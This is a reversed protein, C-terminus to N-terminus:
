AGAGVAATGCEPCRKPTARMDYGCRPCSVVGPHRRRMIPLMLPFLAFLLVVMAHPFVFTDRHWTWEVTGSSPYSEVSRGYGFGLWHWGSARVDALPDVESTMEWSLRRLGLPRTGPAVPQAEITVDHAIKLVGKASTFMEKGKITGSKSFFYQVSDLRWYSRAWLFASAVSVALSMAALVNFLRRKVAPM